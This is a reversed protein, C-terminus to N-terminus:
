PRAAALLSYLKIKQKEAASFRRDRHPAARLRGTDRECKQRPAAGCKPCRVGLMLKELQKPDM